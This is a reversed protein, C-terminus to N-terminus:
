RMALGASAPDNPYWKSMLFDSAINNFPVVTGYLLVCILCILWFSPPFKRISALAESFIAHYSFDEMSADSHLGDKGAILSKNTTTTHNNSSGAITKSQRKEIVVDVDLDYDLDQQVPSTTRSSSSANGGDLFFSLERHHHDHHTPLSSSEPSTSPSTEASSTASTGFLRKRLSDTLSAQQYAEPLTPPSASSNKLQLESSTSIM